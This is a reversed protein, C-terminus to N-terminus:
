LATRKMPETATKLRIACLNFAVLYVPCNLTVGAPAHFSLRPRRPCLPLPTLILRATRKM